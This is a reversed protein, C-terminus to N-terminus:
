MLDLNIKSISCFKSFFIFLNNVLKPRDMHSFATSESKGMLVHKLNPVNYIMSTERLLPM